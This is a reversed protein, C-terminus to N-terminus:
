RTVAVPHAASITASGLVVDGDYMVLAQGAAVGRQTGHLSASIRDDATKVFAPTVMGHARLQVLCEFAQGPPEGTTWLPRDAVVEATDLMEGPGV